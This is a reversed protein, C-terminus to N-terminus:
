EKLISPALRVAPGLGVEVVNYLIVGFRSSFFVVYVAFHVSQSGTESADVQRLNMGLVFCDRSRQAGITICKQITAVVPGEECGDAESQVLEV